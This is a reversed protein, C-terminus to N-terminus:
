KDFGSVQKNKLFASGLAAGHQEVRAFLHSVTAVAVAPLFALVALRRSLVM